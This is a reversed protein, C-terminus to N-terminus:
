SQLEMDRRLRASMQLFEDVREPTVLTPVILAWMEDVRQYLDTRGTLTDSVRQVGTFAPIIFRAAATIDITDRIEGAVAAAQLHSEAFRLWDYYTEVIPSSFNSSEITLRIGAQTIPDTRLLRAFRYTIELVAAVGTIRDISIDDILTLGADHQAGVVALAIHEKSTFHFYLAGKTVGAAQAVDDQSTGGYGRTRFLSAAATIIAARTEHARAQTPM